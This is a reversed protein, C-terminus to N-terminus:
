VQNFTFRAAFSSHTTRPPRIARAPPSRPEVLGRTNGSPSLSLTKIGTGIPGSATPLSITRGPIAMALLSSARTSTCRTSAPSRNGHGWVKYAKESILHVFPNSRAEAPLRKVPSSTVPRSTTARSPFTLKKQTPPALMTTSVVKMNLSSRCAKTTGLPTAPGCPEQGMTVSTTTSISSCLAWVPPMSSDPTQTRFTTPNAATDNENGFDFSGGFNLNQLVFGNMDLFPRINLYSAYDLQNQVNLFGNRAGNFVGSAYDVKKDFITGMTQIGVNRNLGYNNFFLSREPDIVANISLAYFEYTFPLRTGVLNLKFGITSSM